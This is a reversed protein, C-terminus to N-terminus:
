LDRQRLVLLPHRHPYGGREPHLIKDACAAAKPAAALPPTPSSSGARSHRRPYRLNEEILAKASRAMAMTHEELSERIGGWRGDIVPRIGIKPYLM